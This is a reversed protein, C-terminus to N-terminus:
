QASLLLSSHISFYLFVACVFFFRDYKNNKINGCRSVKGESQLEKPFNGFVAVRRLAVGIRPVVPDNMPCVWWSGVASFSIRAGSKWWSQSLWRPCMGTCIYWLFLGGWGGFISSGGMFCVRFALLRDGFIVEEAGVRSHLCQSNRPFVERAREHNYISGCYRTHKKKHTLPFSHHHNVHHKTKTRRDTIKSPDHGSNVNEVHNVKSTVNYNKHLGCIFLDLQVTLWKFINKLWRNNTKSNKLGPNTTKSWFEDSRIERSTPNTTKHNLNCLKECDKLIRTNQQFTWSLYTCCM